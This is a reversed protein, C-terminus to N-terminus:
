QHGVSVRRAALPPHPAERFWHCSPPRRAGGGFEDQSLVQSHGLPDDFTDVFERDLVLVPRNGVPTAAFWIEGRQM